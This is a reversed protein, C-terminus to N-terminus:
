RSCTSAADGAIHWSGRTPPFPLGTSVHQNKKIKKSLGFEMSHHHQLESIGLLNYKKNKSDSTVLLKHQNTTPSPTHCIRPKENNHSGLNQIRFSGNTHHGTGPHVEKMVPNHGSQMKWFTQWCPMESFRTTFPLKCVHCEILLLQWFVFACNKNINKDFRRFIKTKVGGITWGEMGGDERRGGGWHQWKWGLCGFLPGGPVDVQRQGPLSQADSTTAPNAWSISYTPVTAGAYISCCPSFSFCGNKVKGSFHPQWPHLMEMNGKKGMAKWRTPQPKVNGVKLDFIMKAHRWTAPSLRSQRLRHIWRSYSAAIESFGGIQWFKM